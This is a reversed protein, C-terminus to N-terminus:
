SKGAPVRGNGALAAIGARVLEADLEPSLHSRLRQEAVELALQAAYDRLQQRALKGAAEIEQRSLAAIREAEARSEEILRAHERHAEAEAERGLAEIEADLADLRQRAEAWKKEAGEHAARADALGRRIDEGRRRWWGGWSWNEIGMLAMIAPMYRYLVYVVAVFNLWLVLQWITSSHQSWWRSLALVDLGGEGQAFLWCAAAASM